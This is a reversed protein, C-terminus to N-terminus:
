ARVRGWPKRLVVGLGAVVGLDGPVLIAIGIVIMFDAIFRILYAFGGAASDDKM